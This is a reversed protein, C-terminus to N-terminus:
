YAIPQVFVQFEKTTKLSTTPLTLVPQQIERRERMEKNPRREQLSVKKKRDRKLGNWWLGFLRLMVFNYSPCLHFTLLLSAGISLNQATLAFTCKHYKYYNSIQTCTVTNWTILVVMKDAILNNDIVLRGM